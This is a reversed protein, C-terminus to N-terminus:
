FSNLEKLDVNSNGLGSFYATLFNELISYMNKESAIFGGSTKHAGYNKEEQNEHAIKLLRPIDADRTTRISIKRSRRPDNNIYQICVTTGFGAKKRLEDLEAVFPKILQFEPSAIPFVQVEEEIVKSGLIARGIIENKKKALKKENCLKRLMKVSEDRPDSAKELARIIKPCNDLRHSFLLVIDDVLYDISKARFDSFKERFLKEYGYGRTGLAGMFSVDIGHKEAVKLLPYLIPVGREYIKEIGLGKPNFYTFKPDNECLEKIDDRDKHHGLIGVKKADKCIEDLEEHPEYELFCVDSFDHRKAFEIAKATHLYTIYQSPPITDHVNQCIKNFAVQTPIGGLDADYYTGLSRPNLGRIYDDMNKVLPEIKEDIRELFDTM